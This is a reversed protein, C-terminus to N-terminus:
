KSTHVRQVIRHIDIKLIYARNLFKYALFVIKYILYIDLILSNFYIAFLNLNLNLMYEGFFISRYNNALDLQISYIQFELM